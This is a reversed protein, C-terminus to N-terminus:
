CSYGLGPVEANLGMNDTGPAAWLEGVLGTTLKMEGGQESSSRQGDRCVLSLPCFSYM